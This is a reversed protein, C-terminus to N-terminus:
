TYLPEVAPHETVNGDIVGLLPYVDTPQLVDLPAVLPVAAPEDIVIVPM